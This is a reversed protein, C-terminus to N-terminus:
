KQTVEPLQSLLKTLIVAPGPISVEALEWRRLTRQDVGLKAAMEAQTVGMRERIKRLEAATMRPLKGMCSM